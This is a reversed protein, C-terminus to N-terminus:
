APNGGYSLLADAFADVQAETYKFRGEQQEAASADWTIIFDQWRLFFFGNGQGDIAKVANYPLVVFATDTKNSVNTTTNNTTPSSGLPGLIKGGSTEYMGVGAAANANSFVLTPDTTFTGSSNIIAFQSNAVTSGGSFIEFGGSGDPQITGFDSWQPETVFDTSPQDTGIENITGSANITFLYFTDNTTANDLGVGFLLTAADNMYFGVWSTIQGTIAASFSAATFSWLTSGTVDVASLTSTDSIPLLIASGASSAYGPASNPLNRGRFTPLSEGRLEPTDGTGTRTVGSM